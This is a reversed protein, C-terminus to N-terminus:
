QRARCGPAPAPEQTMLHELFALEQCDESGHYMKYSKIKTFSKKKDKRRIQKKKEEATRYFLEKTQLPLLLWGGIDFLTTEVSYM